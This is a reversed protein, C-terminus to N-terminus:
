LKKSKRILLNPILIAASIILLLIFPSIPWVYFTTEYPPANLSPDLSVSVKYQGPWFPPKLQCSNQDTCSINRSYHSLVNDSNLQFEKIVQDNKTITIKGNTKFFFDSDNKIKGSFSIPTFFIDKIQPSVSFSQIKSTVVPNETNSVSLLIHSGIKGSAQSFNDQSNTNGQFQSVFFTYYSDALKIDSNTKIKLVLQQKSNAPLVFSQGLTLDSNLLSFEINPNSVAQSYNVSGDTGVPIWPSVETTLTIDENSNNAIEYTQTLNIGPKLVFEIQSPSLTLNFPM